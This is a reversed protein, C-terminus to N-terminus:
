RVFGENKGAFATMAAKGNEDGVKSFPRRYTLTFTRM